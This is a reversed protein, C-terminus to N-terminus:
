IQPPPVFVSLIIKIQNENLSPWSLFFHSLAKFLSRLLFTHVHPTECTGNWKMVLFPAHTVLHQQSTHFQFPTLSLESSFPNDQLHNRKIIIYDFKIIFLFRTHKFHPSIFCFKIPIKTWRFFPWMLFAVHKLQSSINPCHFAKFLITFHIPWIRACKLNRAM